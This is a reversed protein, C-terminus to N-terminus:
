NFMYKIGVSAYWCNGLTHYKKWIDVNGNVAKPTSFTAVGDADYGEYKLIRGEGLDPNMYKSVGWSSNFLNLVNKVDLNLQLTNTSKGVKVKFDHKYSFDLRHLWPSYVSYSEAYKGQNKSLYSDAHVFDMFRKADDESVFRFEGDAVQKDTPIYILDYNYGDGNMDNATMYTYNMGGRTAEYILSFHNGSKDNHTVSAVVRDPTVYESNHLGPDNPGYITGIYNLVSSANSGPMGTIEKSATRTYAAMINLGQVPAMNVTFSASYGYGRNTNELVYAAPLNKTEGKANM